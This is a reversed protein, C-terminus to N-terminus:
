TEVDVIVYSHGVEFSSPGAKGECFRNMRPLSRPSLNKLDGVENLPESCWYLHKVKRVRNVHEIKEVESLSSFRGVCASTASVPSAAIWPRSVITRKQTLFIGDLDDHPKKAVSLRSGMNGKLGM